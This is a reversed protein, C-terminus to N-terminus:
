ADEEGNGTLLRLVPKTILRNGCHNCFLRLERDINKCRNCQYLIEFNNMNGGRLTFVSKVYYLMMLDEAKQSSFLQEAYNM